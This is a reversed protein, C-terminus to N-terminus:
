ILHSKRWCVEQCKEHNLIISCTKQFYTMAGKSWITSFWCQLIHDNKVHLLMMTFLVQSKAVTVEDQDILYFITESKPDGVFEGFLLDQLDM